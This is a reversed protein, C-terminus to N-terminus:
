IKFFSIGYFGLFSPPTAASFLKKECANTVFDKLSFGDNANLIVEKLKM